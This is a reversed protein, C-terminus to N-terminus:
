EVYGNDVWSEYAPNNNLWQNQATFIDEQNEEAQAVNSSNQQAEALEDSLGSLTQSDVEVASALEDYDSEASNVDAQDNSVQTQLENAEQEM